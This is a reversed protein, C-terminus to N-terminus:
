FILQNMVENEMDATYDKSMQKSLVTVIDIADVENDSMYTYKRRNGDYCIVLTIGDDVINHVYTILSIDKVSNDFPTKWGSDRSYAKLLIKYRNAKDLLEDYKNM